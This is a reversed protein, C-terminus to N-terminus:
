LIERNYINVLHDIIQERDIMLRPCLHFYDSKEPHLKGIYRVGSDNIVDLWQKKASVVKESRDLGWGILVWPHQVMEKYPILDEEFSYLDKITALEKAASNLQPNKISFLNFVHLRGELSDGYIRRLFKDLQRLTDDLTIEGILRTGEQTYGNKFDASGPNMGVFAGISTESSGWQLYCKRRLLSTGRNEFEGYAVTKNM